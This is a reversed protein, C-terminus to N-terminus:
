GLKICLQAASPSAHAPLDCPVFKHADYKKLPFAFTLSKVATKTKDFTKIKMIALVQNISENQANIKTRFAKCLM